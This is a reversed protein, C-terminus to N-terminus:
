GTPILNVVTRHDAIEPTVVILIGDPIRSAADLRWATIAPGAQGLVEARRVGLGHRTVASAVAGSEVVLWRPPVALTLFMDSMTRACAQRFAIIEDVSTLGSLTSFSLLPTLDAALAQSVQGSLHRFHQPRLLPGQGHSALDLTPELVLDLVTPHRRIANRLAGNARTPPGLMVVGPSAPRTSSPGGFLEPGRLQPVGDPSICARVFSPGARYLLRIGEREVVLCALVLEYLDDMTAGDVSVQQGQRLQRLRRLLTERGARLEALQIAGVSGPPLAGDSLAELWRRLDPERVPFRSDNDLDKEALPVLRDGSRVWQISNLTYFDGDFFAPVWLVGDFGGSRDAIAQTEVFAHGALLPDIRHFLMLDSRTAYGAAIADAVLRQMRFAADSASLDRTNALLATAYPNLWLETAIAAASMEVVIPVKGIAHSGTVEDVILIIKRRSTELARRVRQRLAPTDSPSPIPRHHPSLTESQVTIAPASLPRVVEPGPVGAQNSPSTNIPAREVPCRVVPRRQRALRRLSSAGRRAAPAGGHEDAHHRTAEIARM